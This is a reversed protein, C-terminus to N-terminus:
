VVGRIKKQKRAILSIYGVSALCAQFFLELLHTAFSMTISHGQDYGLLVLLGVMVGEQTGIRGYGHIPLMASFNVLGLLLVIHAFPLNFGFCKFILLFYVLAAAVNLVNLLLLRFVFWLSSYSNIEHVIKHRFNLYNEKLGATGNRLVFGGLLIIVFLSVLLGKKYSFGSLDVSFDVRCYYLAVITMVLIIGAKFLHFILLSGASTLREIQFYKKLFHVYSYHGASFPIITSLFNYVATVKWFDLVRLHCSRTTIRYYYARVVYSVGMVVLAQLLFFPSIKLGTISAFDINKLLFFALVLSAIVTFLYRKSM